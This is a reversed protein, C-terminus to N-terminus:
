NKIPITDKLSSFESKDIPKINRYPTSDKNVFNVRIVHTIDYDNMNSTKTYPNTSSYTKNRLYEQM